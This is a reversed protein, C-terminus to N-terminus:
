HVLDNIITEILPNDLSYYVMKGLKRKRVVGAKNLIQLHHSTTAVTANVIISLDCVCLEKELTLAYAITLRTKDSLLKFIQSIDFIKDEVLRAQINKVKEENFCTTECINDM